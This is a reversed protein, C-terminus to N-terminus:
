QVRRNGAQEVLPHLRPDEALGAAVREGQDLQRAPQRRRLERASVPEGVRAGQRAADLVGEQLPDLHKRGVRPKEEQRRCGLRQAIQAQQPAGGLTEPDAALGAPRGLGGSQDLEAQANPERMREHARGDVARRVRPVATVHVPREGVRGVRKEIGVTAGPM